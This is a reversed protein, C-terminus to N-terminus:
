RDINSACKLVKVNEWFWWLCISVGLLLIGIKLADLLLAFAIYLAVNHTHPVLQLKLMSFFRSKHLAPGVPTTKSQSTVPQRLIQFKDKLRIDVSVLARFYFMLLTVMTFIGWYPGNPSNQSLRVAVSTFLILFGIRDIQPDLWTGVMSSKTMKALEGDAADLFSFLIICVAALVHYGYSDSHMLGAALAMWVLRSITLHNAKIPSHRLVKALQNGGLRYVYKIWQDHHKIHSM